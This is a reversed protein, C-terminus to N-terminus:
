DDALAYGAERLLRDVAIKAEIMTVWGSGLLSACRAMMEPLLPHDPKAAKIMDAWARDDQITVVVYSDGGEEDDIDREIRVLPGAEELDRLPWREAGDKPDWGSPTEWERAILLRDFLDVAVAPNAKLWEAIQNANEGVLCGGM